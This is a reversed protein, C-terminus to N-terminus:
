ACPIRCKQARADERCNVWHEHMRTILEQKVNLRDKLTQQRQLPVRIKMWGHFFDILSVATGADIGPPIIGEVASSLKDQCRQCAPAEKYGAVLQGATFAGCGRCPQFWGDIVLDTGPYYLATDPNYRLIDSEESNSPKPSCTESTHLIKRVVSRTTTTQKTRRTRVPQRRPPSLSGRHLLQETRHSEDSNSESVERRIPATHQKAKKSTRPATSQRSESSAQKRKPM